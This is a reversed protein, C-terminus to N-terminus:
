LQQHDREFKKAGRLRVSIEDKQLKNLSKENTVNMNELAEKEAELFSLKEELQSLQYGLDQEDRSTSNQHANQFSPRFDAESQSHVPNPFTKQYNNEKEWHQAFTNKM